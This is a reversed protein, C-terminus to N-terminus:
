PKGGTPKMGENIAAITPAMKEFHAGLAEPVTPIVPIPQRKKAPLVAARLRTKALERAWAREWAEENLGDPGDDLNKM